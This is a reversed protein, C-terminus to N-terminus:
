VPSGQTITELDYGDYIRNIKNIFDRLIDASWAVVLKFNGRQLKVSPIYTM